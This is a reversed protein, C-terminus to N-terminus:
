PNADVEFPEGIEVIHRDPDFSRFVLPGWAQRKIPHIIEAGSGAMRGFCADLEAREFYLKLNWRGQDESPLDDGRVSHATLNRADPIALGGEFFV